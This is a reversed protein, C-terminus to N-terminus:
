TLEVAREELDSIREESEGLRINFGELSNKLETTINNLMIVETQYKSNRKM